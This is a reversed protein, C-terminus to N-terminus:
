VKHNEAKNEDEESDYVEIIADETFAKTVVYKDLSMLLSPLVVM